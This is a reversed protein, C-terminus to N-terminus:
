SKRYAIDGGVITMEVELDKIEEVPLKTPDGNLVVLDALKGPTVSGKVAEEFSAYAANETYLRIAELPSIREQPLLIEGTKTRRSVAAYIGCLPNVPAMPCDSGAAVKVGAKLLSAIPYLHQLQGEPVTKLYREGNFYIFAPQTVVVARLLALRKAIDPLCVSCHEIRHRHNMSPSQQLAYELASCAVEVTSEDVAHLAVQLHSQHIRHVLQRLGEASPNLQGTTEQLVIKVGGPHVESHTTISAHCVRDQTEYAQKAESAIATSLGSHCSLLQEFGELGLMLSVRCRLNGEKRWHQFMRWRKWDNEPSADQISTIGTSLLEQNALQVGRCLESDDLPPVRKALFDGMDYLLGNPEGTKLDREIIGGPPEPTEKSIGALTLALSNLVYAHGSRHTLKVPHIYTAKDLDWRTPHRKEALYFEDYGEARLWSGPALNKAVKRIERQIDLISHVKAPGLNLNVLSKALAVFHCHADNFGPLVTRGQCDIVTTKSDTFEKLDEDGGIALIRDDRIAVLQAPPHHSGPTLVNAHYLILDAAM